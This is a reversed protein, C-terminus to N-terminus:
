WYSSVATVHAPAPRYSLIHSKTEGGMDSDSSMDVLELSIPGQFRHVANEVRSDFIWQDLDSIRVYM